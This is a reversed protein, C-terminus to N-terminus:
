RGGLCAVMLREYDGSTEGEIRQVLNKGFTAQYAGKVQTAYNKDWHARIVREILLHDKTGVGSMAEELLIADRRAKDTGTRLQHILADEMHGSFEKKIVAELDRQYKAKYAHAIARIQADNRQTLINCVLLEDTGVKGETAKYLEQADHDVEQPNVPISDENRRAALVMLFHRETKMSLDAKIADELSKHYKRQYFSKIANLDANSRGLLVDNLVKEKTGPGDMAEYLNHCDQELPGRIIACLGKEFWGSVESQVDGLLQRRHLRTYAARIVEVQLPDKDALIKILTKEDTGFGKMAKRLANADADGNWAIVQPAGYGVSPPTPPGAPQGYM